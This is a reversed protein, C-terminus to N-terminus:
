FRKEKELKITKRSLFGSVFKAAIALIALEM